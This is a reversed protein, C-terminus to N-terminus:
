RFGRAAHYAANLEGIARFAIKNRNISLDICRLRRRCRPPEVAELLGHTRQSQKWSPAGDRRLAALSFTREAMQEIPVLGMHVTRNVFDIFRTLNDAYERNPVARPVFGPRIIQQSLAYLPTMRWPTLHNPIHPSLLIKPNQSRSKPRSPSIPCKRTLATLDSSQPIGSQGPSGGCFGFRLKRLLAYFTDHSKLTM